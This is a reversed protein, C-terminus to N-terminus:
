PSFGDQNWFIEVFRKLDGPSITSPPSKGMLWSVLLRVSLTSGSSILHLLYIHDNTRVPRSSRLPLALSAKVKFSSHHALGQIKSKINCM